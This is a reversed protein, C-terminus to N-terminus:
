NYGNLIKNIMLLKPKFRNKKVPCDTGVIGVCYKSMGMQRIKNEKFIRFVPSALAVRDQKVEAIALKPWGAQNEFNFYDLGIDITFREQRKISALTIRKYFVLLKPEFNKALYPTNQEIFEIGQGEITTNIFLDQIRKKITRGTNSKFKIEFFCTDTEIYRRYRVKYRNLKGNHHENYLTYENTDFYMSEYNFIRNTEIKLVSYYSQLVNLIKPLKEVSFVFKTDKRNLLEIQLLDDLSVTDYRELEAIIDKTEAM